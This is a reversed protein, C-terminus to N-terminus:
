CSKEYKARTKKTKRMKVMKMENTIRRFAETNAESYVKRGKHESILEQHLRIAQDMLELEKRKVICIDKFLDVFSKVGEWSQMRVQIAANEPDKIAELLNKPM